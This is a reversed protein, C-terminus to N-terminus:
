ESFNWPVEVEWTPVCHAFFGPFVIHGHHLYLGSASDGEGYVVDGIISHGLHALHVRIQHRAGKHIIARVLTTNKSADRFLPEVRTWRKTDTTEENLVLTTKRNDTDLTGRLTVSQELQGTVLAYYTKTIQGTAEFEKYRLAAEESEAAMVIGSTPQDLRNLLRLNATDEHRRMYEELSKGGGGSLEVTHLGGPKYLAVFGNRRTLICPSACENQITPLIGVMQGNFVRYGPKKKQGNVEVRGQEIMRRRGRLSMDPFLLSLFKDLRWQAQPQAVTLLLEYQKQNPTIMFFVITSILLKTSVAPVPLLM